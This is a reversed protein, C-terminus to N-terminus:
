LRDARGPSWQGHRGAQSHRGPSRRGLAAVEYNNRHGSSLVELQTGDRSVRLTTGFNNASLRRGSRDTVDLTPERAQVQDAGYRADGVTFYMRGDPGFTMGHLGHDSDVGRFGTLLPYRRDASDDGDSDDGDSDELVLLDPSHGVYVRTGTQVNGEWLEEIALGLPVPFIDSAFDTVKDALGDGDTDESIRIRDAGDVRKLDDFEKMKMRYNKGEAIWVRGRSDIEMATPNNVMPEGAWLSIKV